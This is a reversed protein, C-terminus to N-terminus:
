RSCATLMWSAVESSQLAKRGWEGGRDLDIAYQLAERAQETWGVEKYKQGLDWYGSATLGRPVETPPPDAAKMETVGQALNEVLQRSDEEPVGIALLQQRIEDFPDTSGAAEHSNMPPGDLARVKSGSISLPKGRAWWNALRL